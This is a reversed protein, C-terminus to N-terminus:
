IRFTLTVLEVCVAYFCTYKFIKHDDYVLDTEYFVSSKKKKRMAVQYLSILRFIAWQEDFLRSISLLSRSKNKKEIVSMEFIYELEKKSKSKM